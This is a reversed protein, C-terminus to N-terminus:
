ELAGEALGDFAYIVAPSSRRSAKGSEEEDGNSVAFIVGNVIMPVSPGTLDRSIWGPVLSLTGNADSVQWAAIAGKTM